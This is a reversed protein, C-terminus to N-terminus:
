LKYEIRLRQVTMQGNALTNASQLAIVIRTNACTVLRSPAVVVESALPTQAVRVIAFNKKVFALANATSDAGGYTQSYYTVQRQNRVHFCIVNDTNPHLSQFDETAGYLHQLARQKANNGTGSNFGQLFKHQWVAGNVYANTIGVFGFTYNATAVDTTFQASVRLESCDVMYEALQQPIDVWIQPATNSNYYMGCDVANSKIRLGAGNVVAFQSALTQNALQSFNTDCYTRWGGPVVAAVAAAIAAERAAKTDADQAASPDTLGTIRGDDAIKPTSRQVHKGDTGDYRAIENDASTGVGIVDGGVPLADIAADIAAGVYAETAVDALALGSDALKTGDASNWTTVNGATSTDPGVVTGEGGGGGGAGITIDTRLSGPNDVITVDGIFNLIKRTPDVPKGAKFIRNVGLLDLLSM